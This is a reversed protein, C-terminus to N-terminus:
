LQIMRLPVARGVGPRRHQRQLRDHALVTVQLRAMLIIKPPHLIVLLGVSQGVAILDAGPLDDDHRHREGEVRHTRAPIEDIAQGSEVHAVQVLPEYPQGTVLSAIGNGVSPHLRASPDSALEVAALYLARHLDETAIREGGFARLGFALLHDFNIEVNSYISRM